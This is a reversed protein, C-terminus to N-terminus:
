RISGEAVPTFRNAEGFLGDGEGSLAAGRGQINKAGRVGFFSQEIPRDLRYFNRERQRSISRHPGTELLTALQVFLM